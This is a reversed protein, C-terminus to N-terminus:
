GMVYRLLGSAAIGILVTPLMPLRSAAFLTIALAVLDSVRHTVFAPAIVAILVCGPAAEMMAVARVSLSRNRLLLYGTIRTLYTASAMLVIALLTTPQIM